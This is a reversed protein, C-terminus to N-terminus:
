THDKEIGVGGGGCFFDLWVHNQGLYRKSLHLPSVGGGGGRVCGALFGSEEALESGMRQERPCM